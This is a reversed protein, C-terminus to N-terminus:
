RRNGGEVDVFYFSLLDSTAAARIVSAPVATLVAAVLSFALCTKTMQSM